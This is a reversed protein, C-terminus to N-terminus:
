IYRAVAETEERATLETGLQQSHTVRQQSSDEVGPSNTIPKKPDQCGRRIGRQLGAYAAAM